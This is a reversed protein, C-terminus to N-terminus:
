EESLKKVFSILINARPDSLSYVAHGMGFILGAKDFAKKILLAVLYERVERENKWDSINKKMDEFM